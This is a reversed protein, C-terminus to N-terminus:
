QKINNGKKYLFSIKEGTKHTITVDSMFNM